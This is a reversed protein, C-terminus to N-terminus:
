KYIEDKLNICKRVAVLFLDFIHKVIYIQQVTGPLLGLAFSEQLGDVIKPIDFVPFKVSFDNVFTQNGTWHFGFSFIVNKFM